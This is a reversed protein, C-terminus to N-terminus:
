PIFTVYIYIYIYLKIDVGFSGNEAGYRLYTFIGFRPLEILVEQDFKSDDMSIIYNNNDNDLVVYLIGNYYGIIPCSGHLPTVSYNNTHLDLIIFQKGQGRIYIEIITM